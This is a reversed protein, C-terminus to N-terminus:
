HEVVADVRELPLQARFSGEHGPPGGRLRGSGPGHPRPPASPPDQSPPLSSDRSSRNLWREFEAVRAEPRRNADVLEGIRLLLGVV